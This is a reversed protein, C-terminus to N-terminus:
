RATPPCGGAELLLAPMRSRRGTADVVLDCYLTAGQERLSAQLRRLLTTKGSGREGALLVNLGQGTARVLPDWASPVVFYRRDALSDYLPRGNLM